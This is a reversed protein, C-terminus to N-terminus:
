SPDPRFQRPRFAPAARLPPGGSGPEGQQRRGQGCTGHRQGRRRHGAQLQLPPQVLGDEEGLLTGTSRGDVVWELDARGMPVWDAAVLVETAEPAFRMPPAVHNINLSLFPRAAFARASGAIAHCIAAIDAVHGPQAASVMVHKATGALAAAPSSSAASLSTM